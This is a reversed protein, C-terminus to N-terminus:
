RERPAIPFGAWANLIGFTERFTVLADTTTRWWHDEDYSERPVSCVIARAKRGAVINWVVRVRRTHSKSTVVIVPSGHQEAYATVVKLETYTNDVPEPLIRVRDDPVGMKRLLWQGSEYEAAQPMGFAELDRDRDNKSGQTLWVEKAWGEKYLEAAKAVRYPFGGGMVAVAAAHELPDDLVLWFGLYRLAVGGILVLVAM